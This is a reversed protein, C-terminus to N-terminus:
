GAAALAAHLKLKRLKYFLTSRNIGLLKAAEDRNGGAYEIARLIIQREPEELAKKLPLIAGTEEAQVTTTASRQVLDRPLASMEIVGGETLVVAREIINELERINGPWDHAELTDMAAASVEAAEKELAAAHKRVFHRVLDLIDERRERLPPVHVPVVNIRYYLDERFRGEAVERALDVNTALIVRADIQITETGGVRELCSDQIVRLLKVQLSPSANAIEDLFITGGDAAEFKGKRQHTAGTFAGAEHGFLEAELLSETLAGCTVEIFPGHARDSEYHMARAIMTKGTGSEGTILVTTRAKAMTRAMRVVKLMEENKCVVNDLGLENRATARLEETEHKLHNRRLTQEIVLRIESDVLPKTIYNSAGCKIAQIADEITGYGTVLVVDLEPHTEKVDELLKFATGDPMYVDALLLDLPTSNVVDSAEGVSRAGHVEHGETKLFEMLSRLVIEDDDLVLVRATTM